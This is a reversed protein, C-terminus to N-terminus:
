PLPWPLNGFDFPGGLGGEAELLSMLVATAAEDNGSESSATSNPPSSAPKAERVMQDSLTSIPPPGGPRSVASSRSSVIVGGLKERDKEVRLMAERLLKTEKENTVAADKAGANSTSPQLTNPSGGAQLADIPSNSASSDNRWKDIIEDAIHQGIKAAETHSTIVRQIDKGVTRSTNSGNTVPTRSGSEDGSFFDLDGSDGFSGAAGGGGEADGPKEQAVLLYNKCVIYEIEKTWPNRFQKWKSSVKVFNGERTRFRYYPSVQEGPNRLSNRHCEAIVPIDDYQVHEYLSSGVLEQPLFGLMLTVRQDVYLFKGDIGHRSFFNLV